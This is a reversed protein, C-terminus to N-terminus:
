GRTRMFGAGTVGTNVTVQGAGPSHRAPFLRLNVMRTRGNNIKQGPHFIQIFLLAQQQIVPHRDASHILHCRRGRFPARCLTKFLDTVRHLIGQLVAKIFVVSVGPHHLEETLIFIIHICIKVMQPPIHLGMRLAGSKCLGPQALHFPMQPSNGARFPKERVRQHGTLGPTTLLSPGPHHHVATDPFVAMVRHRRHRHQVLHTFAHHPRQAPRPHATGTHVTQLYM